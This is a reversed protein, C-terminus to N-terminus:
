SSPITGTIISRTQVSAAGGVTLRASSNSDVENFAFLNNNSNGCELIGNAQAYSAGSTVNVGSGDQRCTNNVV